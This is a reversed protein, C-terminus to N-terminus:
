PFHLRRHSNNIACSTGPHYDSIVPSVNIPPHHQSSAEVFAPTRFQIRCVSSYPSGNEKGLYLRHINTAGEESAATSTEAGDNTPREPNDVDESPHPVAPPPARPKQLLPKQLLTPKIAPLSVRKRPFSLTPTRTLPMTASASRRNLRRNPKKQNTSPQLNIRDRSGRLLACASSPHNRRRRRQWAPPHNHRRRRQWAPPHNRRRRRQWGPPHIQQRLPIWAWKTAEPTVGPLLLRPGRPHCQNLGLNGNKAM